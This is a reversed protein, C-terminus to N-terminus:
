LSRKQREKHCETHTFLKRIKEGAEFAFGYILLYGASFAEDSQKYFAEGHKEKEAKTTNSPSSDKSFPNLLM